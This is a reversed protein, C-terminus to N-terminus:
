MQNEELEKHNQQDGWSNCWDDQQIHMLQHGPWGLSKDWSANLAYLM